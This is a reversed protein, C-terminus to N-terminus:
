ISQRKMCHFVICSHFHGRTRSHFCTESCIHLPFTVVESQCLLSARRLVTASAQARDGLAAIVKFSTQKVHVSSFQSPYYVLNGSNPTFRLDKKM